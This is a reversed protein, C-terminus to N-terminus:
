NHLYGNHVCVVWFHVKWAFFYVGHPKIYFVPIPLCGVGVAVDLISRAAFCPYIGENGVIAQNPFLPPPLTNPPLRSTSLYMM